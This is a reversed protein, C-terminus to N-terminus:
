VRAAPARAPTAGDTVALTATEADFAQLTATAQGATFSLSQLMGLATSNITPVHTGDPAAHLGSFTLSVGSTLGTEVNQYQDVQSITITETGGATLTSGGTIRYASASGVSVTLSLGTGGGSASTHTGDTVALTATEADFAQLTATAQGATFSILQTGLATGNIKAATGDPVAHPGSFTLSVSGTLSTEVNQYQDVQSITITETGGATLTSGGTIRYASVGAASVTLSLGTGGTTSSGYTGDTVALTATEADFAQLTATAQGSTFSLSQSTGLAQSNIMPVHTGDPAADLGTFTLSVSGTLSTEVNQYQDVQSITITETGGATLTSGGTIRYGSVGAASVTLSLGTGGISASTHTGDTVALTATEADFAQLTATAQGTTFSIMQTGLATGNITAATGDPAAHLGSFTLSVSGTLSSEVNQYQDVQSITVTETGGATLTSGGTIRYGSVGAASVTLSLGTGGTGSSGHTGDTVALTATEADFAQLTATAQGATFSLSQSTGLATSNITPMHTGDPAAHLGSFTLSVGGTLGTEVNQYQDVQSIAVTETGGATLTSGGTIRYGSAFAASVTLSLGTGGTGASTHTGDTVALTATEADFAQLTVTAQGSTFNVLQTGLATGNITAATGDPAAHLGSFTLSVSGSLSTEVNQYQDVQSITVTETGGATLTSGGTIRYGSAAAPTVTVTGTGTISLNATDTATVSQSPTGVHILTAGATFTHSGNDGGNGITFTYNAPVVVGTGSDTTTLHVTGTYLPDVIGAADEAKVTLDFPMGATPNSPSASVIFQTAPNGIRTLTVDTTTYHIQFRLGGVYLLAGDNMGNFTGTLSTDSHVITFTTGVSPTAGTLLSAALVGGGLNISGTATIEDNTSAGIEVQYTSRAGLAISGTASLPVVSGIGDGPSVIGGNATVSGTTGTGSLVGGNVTVIGSITGDDQVTGSSITAAGVVTGSSSVVLTGGGVAVGGKIQASHTGDGVVVTGSNVSTTGTYTNIANLELTGFGAVVIGGTGAIPAKFDAAGDVTFTQSSSGLSIAGTGQISGSVTQLGGNLALTDAYTNISGDGLNLLGAVTLTGGGSVTGLMVNSQGSLLLSDDTITLTGIQESHDNLLFQGDSHIIVAATDAIQNSASLSVVDPSPSTDDGIVLTGAIANGPSKNLALTGANVYTTGTYTNATNGAFTLTGRGTKTLDVPGQISATVTLSYGTDVFFTQPTLGLDLFRATINDNTHATVTDGGLVLTGGNVGTGLGITVGSALDLNGGLTLTKGPGSVNADFTITSNPAAGFATTDLTINTVLTVLSEFTMAGGTTTLNNDLLIKGATQATIDISGTGTTELVGNIVQNAGVQPAATDAQITINGGASLTAGSSNNDVRVSDLSILDSSVDSGQLTINGAAILQGDAGVGSTNDIWVGGHGDHDSDGTLKIYSDTSELIGRIIVDDTATLVIQGPTVINISIIISGNFTANLNIDGSGVAPAALLNVDGGVTLTGGTGSGTSIVKSVTILAPNGQTGATLTVDGGDTTIGDYGNVSGVILPNLVANAFQISGSVLGAITGINNTSSASLDFVSASGGLLLLNTATVASAANESVGNTNLVITHGIAGIAAGSAITLLGGTQLSVDTGSTIGTTTESTMTTVAGITLAGSDQYSLSGTGMLKAALTGVHNGVNKLTYQGASASSALGIQLTGGTIAGNATQIVTGGM